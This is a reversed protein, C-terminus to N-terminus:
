RDVKTREKPARALRALQRLCLGSRQGANANSQPVFRFFPFSRLNPKFRCEAHQPGDAYRKLQRLERLRTTHTIKWRGM